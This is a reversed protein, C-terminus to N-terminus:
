GLDNWKISEDQKINKIVKKGIIKNFFKPEIGNAPRKIIIDNKSIKTGKKLFTKATLSRRVHILNQFESPQCIKEGNGLMEEIKRIDTIMKKLEVPNASFKQDPGKLKNSITFHKEILKAGKAVAVLPVLMNKGNDSYGIPYPFKKEMTQIAKLNAEQFPTPYASLSHLLIIKKNKMSTIAKISDRIESLNSMGTSLIIPKKMLAAYRILPTDTLDGSAIKIASIKLKILLDIADFSFPTSLFAINQSKAYDALEGFEEPKLELKKFVKYYRSKVSTLDSATFTQFKVADAGSEKAKSIIKKAIKTDGNHNIGGEAIIFVPSKDGIWKKGIKVKL